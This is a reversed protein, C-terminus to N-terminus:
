NSTCECLLGTCPGSPGAPCIRGFTWSIIDIFRLFITLETKERPLPPPYSRGQCPTLQICQCANAPSICTFSYAASFGRTRKEPSQKFGLSMDMMVCTLLARAGLDECLDAQLTPKKFNLLFKAHLLHNSMRKQVFPAVDLILWYSTTYISFRHCM